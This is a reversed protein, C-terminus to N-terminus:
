ATRCSQMNSPETLTQTLLRAPSDAPNEDSVQQGIGRRLPVVVVTHAQLWRGLLLVVLLHSRLVELARAAADLGVLLVQVHALDGAAELLLQLRELQLQVLAPQRGVGDGHQLHASPQAHQVQRTPTTAVLLGYAMVHRRWDIEGSYTHLAAQQKDQRDVCRM